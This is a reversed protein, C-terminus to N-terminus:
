ATREVVPRIEISGIRAGPIRAAWDIAEDLSGCDFIMFGNLVEKTEAFPGDSVLRKGDRVRVTTASSIRQLENGAVFKEGAGAILQGYEEYTAAANPGDRLAGEAPDYILCAYKM